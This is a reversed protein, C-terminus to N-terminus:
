SWPSFATNHSYLLRVRGPLCGVASVDGIAVPFASQSVGSLLYCVTLLLSPRQTSALHAPLECCPLSHIYRMPSGVNHVLSIRVVYRMRCRSLHASYM